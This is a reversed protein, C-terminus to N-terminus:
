TEPPRISDAIRYNLAETSLRRSSSFSRVWRNSRISM